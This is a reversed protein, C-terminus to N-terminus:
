PTAITATAGAITIAAADPSPSAPASTFSWRAIATACKSIFDRHVARSRAFAIFDDLLAAGIGQHQAAPAVAILLLEAEDVIARILAFGCITDGRTAIRLAVGAMAVLPGM